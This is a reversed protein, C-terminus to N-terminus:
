VVGGFKRKRSYYQELVSDLEQPAFDPWLTNCFHLESYASQLLLFNSLRMEGGTRVVLDPDPVHKTYLYNSLTDVDIKTNSDVCLNIANVIEDRSGYNIAINFQGNTCHQTDQRVQRITDLIDNDFVTLDGLFELKIGRDVIKKFHSNSNNLYQRVLDLLEDIEQSPRNRFNETSLAYVTVYRIGKDFCADVIKQMAHVGAKHGEARRKGKHQAWRGNGDMIFAIHQLGKM